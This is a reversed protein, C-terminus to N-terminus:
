VHKLPISSSSLMGDTLYSPTAYLSRKVTAFKIKEFNKGKMGTRKELRKKTDAFVEDPKIIFKFPISHSKSPEGQFHYAQIFSGVEPSIEDEPVRECVIVAYDTMNMIQSERLPERHLRNNHCEYLRIPGGKVEDDIQAKKILGDVIDQVTGNKPVLVDYM